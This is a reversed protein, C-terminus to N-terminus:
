GEGTPRPRFAVVRGAGDDPGDALLGGARAAVVPDDGQDLGLKGRLERLAARVTSRNIGTRAALETSSVAGSPRECSALAELM